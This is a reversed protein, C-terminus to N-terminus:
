NKFYNKDVRICKLRKPEIWKIFVSPRRGEREGGFRNCTILYCKKITRTLAVIFKCIEIDSPSQNNKPLNNEDLGIIFTFGASLGKCGVYTSFVISIENENKEIKNDRKNSKSELIDKIKEIKIGAISEIKNQNELNILEGRSVRKLTAMIDFHKKIYLSPLMKNLKNSPDLVTKKIILTMNKVKDFEMLIRWGLNSSIDENILIKYGDIINLTNFDKSSDEYFLKYSGNLNCFYNRVQKLYHSSGAVLTTYDSKKNVDVIEEIPLKSIESEIFKAIYPSRTNQVSCNACIIKPYKKNDKWKDPLYCIYKKDIRNKLKGMNKANRILDQLAQTIVETCRCCFPLCFIKFALDNYKERIFRASANRISGYLAQDDDGVILIPSKDSLLNLFEVELRNFDQYEDVVIQNYKPIKNPNHKFYELVRYVSDDFSVANYYSSRKIFFDINNNSINITRFSRSFDYLSRDYLLKSDSKIITELKPFLIFKNSLDNNELKHLLEICYSHFTCTKAHKSLDCDLKKALKNIFTIVLYNGEKIELIKKFTFTKGTGPGSVIIKKISKSQLIISLSRDRAIKQEKFDIQNM